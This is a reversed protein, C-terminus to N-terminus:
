GGGTRLQQQLEESESGAQRRLTDIRVEIQQLANEVGDTIKRDLTKSLSQERAAVSRADAADRLIAEAIATNKRQALLEEQFTARADTLMTDMENRMQELLEIRVIDPEARTVDPARGSEPTRAVVASIEKDDSLVDADDDPAVREMPRPKLGRFSGARDLVIGLGWLKDNSPSAKCFAVQGTAQTGTQLRLLVPTGVAIETASYMACEQANMSVPECFESFDVSPKLSTVMIRTNQILTESKTTALM